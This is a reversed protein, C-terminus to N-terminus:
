DALIAIKTAWRAVQEQDTLTLTRAHGIVMPDIHPYTTDDMRNMWGSNCVDCVGKVVLAPERTEWEVAFREAGNVVFPRQGKQRIHSHKLVAEPPKDTVREVWRRGFIHEETLKPADCGFLCTPM